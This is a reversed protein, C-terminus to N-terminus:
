VYLRFRKYREVEIVKGKSIVKQKFKTLRKDRKCAKVTYAPCYNIEVPRNVLDRIVEWFGNGTVEIDWRTEKRISTFSSDLNLHNFFELVNVYEERTKSDDSKDDIRELTFGFGDINLVMSEICQGLINSQEVIKILDLPKYQQEIVQLGSGYKSQFPDKLNSTGPLEEAQIAKALDDTNKAIYSLVRVRVGDNVLSSSKLKRVWTGAEKAWTGNTM